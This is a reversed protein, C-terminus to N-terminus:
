PFQQGRRQHFQARIQDREEVTVYGDGDLDLRVFTKEANALYEELSISGDGDTDMAEIREQMKQHFREARDTDTGAPSQASVLSIALGLLGLAATKLANTHM